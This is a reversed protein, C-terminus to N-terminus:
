LVVQFPLAVLEEEAIKKLAEVDSSYYYNYSTTRSCPYYVCLRWTLEGRSKDDEEAQDLRIFDTYEGIEIRIGYEIFAYQMSGNAKKELADGTTDLTWYYRSQQTWTALTRRWSFDGFPSNM